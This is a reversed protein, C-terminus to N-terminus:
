RNIRWYSEDTCTSITSKLGDYIDIITEASVWGYSTTVDFSGEAIGITATWAAQGMCSVFWRGANRLAPRLNGWYWTIQASMRSPSEIKDLATTIANIVEQIVQAFSKNRIDTEILKKNKKLFSKIVKVDESTFRLEELLKQFQPNNFAKNINFRKKKNLQLESEIIALTSSNLLQRLIDRTYGFAQKIEQEINNIDVACTGAEVCTRVSNLAQVTNKLNDIAESSAQNENTLAVDQGVTSSSLGDRAKFSSICGTVLMVGILGGVVLLRKMPLVEKKESQNQVGFNYHKRGRL